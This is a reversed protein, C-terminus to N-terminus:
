INCDNITRTKINREGNPDLKKLHKDIYLYKKKVIEYNDRNPSFGQGKM